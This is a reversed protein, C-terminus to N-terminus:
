KKRGDVEENVRDCFKKLDERRLTMIGDNLRDSLDSDQGAIRIPSYIPPHNLKRIIKFHKPYTVNVEFTSGMFVTGPKNFARAMHQGVSDCGIFYDCESIFAMYMRLDPNFAHLPPTIEDAPHKFENGGFFIILFDKSLNNVIYLYDDCDLSRQTNDFPKTTSLQIGSGYPQFVIVKKKNGRMKLDNIIRHISNKEFTSLYLNPKSLDSHDNTKNIEADFAESLSLKQNYYGYQYYPEPCVVENPKIYKEFVDKQHVGITKSQLIPHSWYLEHWGHVIVNFNKDPNLRHYKELAPIAAIVRGAGGNIMFTKELERSNQEM